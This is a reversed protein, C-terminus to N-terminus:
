GGYEGCWILWRALIHWQVRRLAALIPIRTAADTHGAIGSQRLSSFLRGGHQECADYGVGSTRATYLQNNIQRGDREGTVEELREPYASDVVVGM